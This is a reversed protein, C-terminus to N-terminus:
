AYVVGAMEMMCSEIFEQNQTTAEVQTSLMKNDQKLLKNEQELEEVRKELTKTPCIDIKNDNTQLWEAYWEEETKIVNGDDDLIDTFVGHRTNMIM